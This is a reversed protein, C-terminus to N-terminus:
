RNTIPYNTHLEVWESGRRKSLGERGGKRGRKMILREGGKM